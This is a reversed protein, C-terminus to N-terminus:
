EKSERSVAQLSMIGKSIKSINKEHKTRVTNIKKIM